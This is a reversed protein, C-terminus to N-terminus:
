RRSLRLTARTGGQSGTELALSGGQLAAVLSALTVGIGRGKEGKTSFLPDFNRRRVELPIGPGSDEIAIQITDDADRRTSVLIPQGAGNAERANSLLAEIARALDGRRGAVPPLAPELDLHVPAQDRIPDVTSRITENVDISGPQEVGLAGVAMLSRTLRELHEMAKEMAEFAEEAPEAANRVLYIHGSFVAAVNNLDHAARASIRAALRAGADDPSRL